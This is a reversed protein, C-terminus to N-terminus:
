IKLKEEFWKTAEDVAQNLKTADTGQGTRTPEKGGSAGGVIGSVVSAWDQASVSKPADAGVYVGHAVAGEAGAAFIYCSRAKEKKKFHNLVEAVIKPDATDTSRAIYVKSEPNEKFYATVKDVAAKVEAKQKAKQSDLISKSITTLQKRLDDKVLTSIQLSSVEATISKVEQEKEPGLEMAGATKIRAQMEEAIRQVERAKVGTVAVVRRIGKAIGSEEVIILDKIIGTQDVHTGGCFEVSIDRWKPNQPDALLTDVDVGVSVVRVPDPYNEGFVARLGFIEHAKKLEVDKTYVVSNQKIYANSSDEIKKLQENTIAAKHSFDFRLKDADVLSGKQMVDDGLHERLSHNLVHTGTHNNRIPQRHLEDFECEVEDGSALQGYSLYGNHVIFGGFTQVDLVTFAAKDGLIIKGTDAVQGGQEAYFNTKDLIIGFRASEPLDKTADLFEGNHFISQIKGTTSGQSFKPEDNSPIAKLENLKAIHHVDLKPFSEGEKKISKSAERAREGAAAIEADDYTLDNENCLIQTLDVPYGFTDYLRWIDDGSLKKSGNSIAEKKLREFLIQGKSLTRKFAVEEEDLIEAIDQQKQRLEPFQEGMQEVLAPLISSFFKGLEVNLYTTAYRCGRRLVRRVVYGRGENNPVGGDAIAFALLRIHDAIIRFTTDILKPDDKSQETNYKDSYDPIEIPDTKLQQEQAVKKITAFLPTFVDTAYNTRKNQLVSVLREFGMGTDVHQAPLVKLSRDAQRDYQMFVNNWIELVDPDDENVLHAANRGGIRDYHIESCPGCPGTEGMEWFNDKMNGPLIHDDAVGVSRWIEKAELDPELGNKSDGEFYTVYLRDPAIGFVKTLLEWSMEIAGKKFYDGFSWNGLMEFFTHHYSDKGVDDLDNHKGGARICKQTDVARKVTYLPDAKNITGLFIPKFQNMGANAFLLTPDNHPVVSSSPVLTHGKQKVFYDIFQDRTKKATWAVETTASMDFSTKSRAALPQAPNHYSHSRRQITLNFTSTITTTTTTATSFFATASVLRAAAGLPRPFIKQHLDPRRRHSLGAAALFALASSSSFRLAVALPRAVDAVNGVVGAGGGRAGGGGRCGWGVRNM